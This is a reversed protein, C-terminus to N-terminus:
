AILEQVVSGDRVLDIPRNGPAMLKLTPDIGLLQFVTAALDAPRVPASEPEAGTANSSGHVLGRRFGGGAVMVSYVRPWHDRGADANIRPTRGFETTLLVVTSDLLGQEDLDAVLAAVAQDVPGIAGPLSAAIRAHHDYGGQEVVVYRAGAQVLRRALLCSMGVPRRGYRDKVQPKEAALDFAARAEPSEILAYAMRYYEEAARVADAEGLRTFGADLDHLLQKRRESRGADVDRPADLDRVRFNDNAPNGGVSFPANAASLYGSGLFQNGSGPICVYPPLNNRIGLQQAVVAGFSPYTIAPSPQYGTLVSHTGRDHDAETHTFSRIVTLKDAVQALKPLQDSFHEGAIKTKITSFPGRVEVPADPKPDFTDIHTLGGGLHVQIVAQAKAAGRAVPGLAPLRGLLGLSASGFLTGRLFERRDPRHM